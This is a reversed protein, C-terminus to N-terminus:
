IQKEIVIRRVTIGACNVHCRLEIDTYNQDLIVNEITVVPEGAKMEKNGHVTSGKDSCIDVYGVIGGEGVLADPADYYFSINYKGSDMERYPGYLLVGDATSTFFGEEDPQFDSFFSTGNVKVEKSMEGDEFDWWPDLIKGIYGSGVINRMVNKSYVMISINGVLIEEDPVGVQNIVTDRTIGSWGSDDLLIFNASDWKSTDYSLWQYASLDNGNCIPKVEITCDSTLATVNALWFTGFGCTLGREKLESVVAQYVNNQYNEEGDYIIKQFGM